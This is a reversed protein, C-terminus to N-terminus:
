KMWFDKDLYFQQLIRAERTIDFGASVIENFTNRRTYGTDYSLVKKAWAKPGEKLPFTEILNTALAERPIDDSAICHLGAAQAEIAAIGLGEHLSPFVFVDMAQLFDNVNAVAGTFIVKNRIGLENVQKEVQERLDGSGILLLTSKDQQKQIEYFLEILFSHNKQPNFRGIHGIVFRDEVKLQRRIKHRAVENFVYKDVEIANSIIRFNDRKVAKNGFLWEGAENSCAFLYHATHRIPLQLMNKIVASFGTGSSTNHSHAITVMGHKRAIKLYISASSRVHGHIIRYEPHARFFNEWAKKYAFHNAVSYRPIYFIRGGLRKIENDYHSKEKTQKVFDFQVANRNLNRYYNMLMTEIGNRDLKGLVHLIRIPESEAIQAYNLLQSM